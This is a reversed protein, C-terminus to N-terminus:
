YGAGHWTDKDFSRFYILNISVCARPLPQPLASSAGQPHEWVKTAEAGPPVVSWEGRHPVRWFFWATPM